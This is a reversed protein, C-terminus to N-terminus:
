HAFKEGIFAIRQDELIIKVPFCQISAFPVHFQVFRAPDILLQLFIHIRFFDKEQPVTKKVDARDPLHQCVSALSIIGPSDGSLSLIFKGISKKLGSQLDRLTFAEERREPQHRPVLFAPLLPRDAPFDVNHLDQSVLGARIVSRQVVAQGMLLILARVSQRFPVKGSVKM